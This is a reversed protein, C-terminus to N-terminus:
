SSESRNEKFSKLNSRKYKTRQDMKFQNKLIIHLLSGLKDNGMYINLQGLMHSKKSEWNKEMLIHTEAKIVTSKFHTKCTPLGGVNNKM